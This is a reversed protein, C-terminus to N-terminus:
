IRVLPTMRTVFAGGWMIVRVRGDGCLCIEYSFFLVSRVALDLAAGTCVGMGSGLAEGAVCCSTWLTLLIAAALSGLPV